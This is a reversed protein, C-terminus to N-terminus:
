RSRSSCSASASRARLLALSTGKRPLAKWTTRMAVFPLLLFVAAFCRPSSSCCCWCGSASAIRSTPRDNIPDGFDSVVDGFPAFHWFFPGNDNIPGRRVPLRRAVRRARRRSRDLVRAISRATAPDAPRTAAARHRRRRRRQGTFRDVEDATFPTKKVLVTSMSAGGATPRRPVLVHVAPRRRGLEDLAQRATSVYRATRNPKNAFDVEGFQAALIGDRRSTTSATRSRRADHLPLEGLARVRRRDRRQHGLLQRAGPVLRPRLRRRQPRPVLARRRQVYNM